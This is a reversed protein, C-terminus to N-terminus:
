IGPFVGKDTREDIRAIIGPELAVAISLAGDMDKRDDAPVATM